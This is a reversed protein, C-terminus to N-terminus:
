IEEIWSNLARIAEDLALGLGVEEACTTNDPKWHPHAALTPPWPRPATERTVEAERARAVFLDRCAEALITLDAREDYFASKLVLLDVM